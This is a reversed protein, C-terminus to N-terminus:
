KVFRVAPIPTATGANFAAVATNHYPAGRETYPGFTHVGWRKGIEHKPTVLGRANYAGGVLPLDFKTGIHNYGYRVFATGALVSNAGVVLWEKLYEGASRDQLPQRSRYRDTVTGALATYIGPDVKDLWALADRATSVLTQIIGPSVRDGVTDSMVQVMEGWTLEFNADVRSADNWQAAAPVSTVYADPIWAKARAPAAPPHEVSFSVGRAYGVGNATVQFWLRDGAKVAATHVGDAKVLPKATDGERVPAKDTLEVVLATAQLGTAKELYVTVTVKGPKGGPATDAELTSEELRVTLNRLEGDHQVQHTPQNTRDTLGADDRGRDPAYPIGDDSPFWVQKGAAIRRKAVAKERKERSLGTLDPLPRQGGSLVQNDVRLRVGPTPLRQGALSAALNVLAGGGGSTGVRISLTDGAAVEVSGEVRGKKNGAALVFSLATDTGNKVLTFTAQAPAPPTTAAQLTNGAVSAALLTIKAPQTVVFRANAETDAGSADRTGPAFFRTQNVALENTAVKHGTNLSLAGSRMGSNHTIRYRREVNELVLQRYATPLYNEIWPLAKGMDLGVESTGTGATISIVEGRTHNRFATDQTLLKDYGLERARAAALEEPKRGKFLRRRDTFRLPEFRTIRQDITGSPRPPPASEVGILAVIEECPVQLRGCIASIAPGLTADGWMGPFLRDKMDDLAAKRAQASGEPLPFPKRPTSSDLIEFSGDDAYRWQFRATEYAHFQNLEGIPFPTYAGAGAGVRRRAAPPSAAALEGLVASLNADVNGATGLQSRAAVVRSGHLSADVLVHLYWMPQIAQGGRDHTRLTVRRPPVGAGTRDGALKAAAKGLRDGARVPLAKMQGAPGAFFDDLFLEIEPAPDKKKAPDKHNFEKLQAALSKGPVTRKKVRTPATYVVELTPHRARGKSADDLATVLLARLAARVDDRNVNVYEVTRLPAELKFLKRFQNEDSRDGTLRLRNPRANPAAEAALWQVRGGVLAFVDAASDALYLELGDSFDGPVTELPQRYDRGRVVQSGYDPHAGLASDRHLVPLAFALPPVERPAAM